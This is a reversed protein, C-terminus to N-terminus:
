QSNQRSMADLVADPREINAFHGADPVRVEHFDDILETLQAADREGAFVDRSGRVSRVPCAIGTWTRVEYEGAIRAAHAFSAPRVEDAFAAVASDDVESAFLPATFARMLGVRAVGRALARGAADWTSLLRMVALMGAFGPLALGGRLPHRIADIVGIGSASILTVGLTQERFRSAIDLAILGGLSHGVLSFQSYGLAGVVEVIAASLSEVDDIGRADGSEGWGPLDILIVNSLPSEGLDSAALLPTWTTWSGAAGHLYVTPVTGASRSSREDAERGTRVVINGVRTPVILRRLGLVAGDTHLPNPTSSRLHTARRGRTTSTSM